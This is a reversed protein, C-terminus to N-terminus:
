DGRSGPDSGGPGKQTKEAKNTEEPSLEIFEIKSIKNGAGQAIMMKYFELVM